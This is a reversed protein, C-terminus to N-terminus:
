YDKNDFAQWAAFEVETSHQYPGILAGFLELEGLWTFQYYFGIMPDGEEDFHVPTGNLTFEHVLFNDPPKPM